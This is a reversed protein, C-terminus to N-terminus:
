STIKKHVLRHKKNYFDRISMNEPAAMLVTRPTMVDGVLIKNFLMLNQIIRKEGEHLIGEKQSIEAMVSFDVKSLVSAKEGKGILKTTLELIWIIGLMRLPWMIMRLTRNTFPALSKWYTAGITKPIIESLVLILLTMVTSIAAMVYTGDGFAEEAQAGVGISGATHAITNLTLIAILPRDINAKLEKLSTAYAHGEKEKVNLFSPSLSLLVAELVSCLFSFFLAVFLYLLLLGM